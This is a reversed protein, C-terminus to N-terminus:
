STTRLRLMGSSCSSSSSASRWSIWSRLRRIAKSCRSTLLSSAWYGHVRGAGGLGGQAGLRGQERGLFLLAPQHLVQRQDLANDTLQGQLGAGREIAFVHLLDTQQTQEVAQAAITLRIFAKGAEGTQAHPAGNEVLQATLVPSRTRNALLGVLQAIGHAFQGATQAALRAVLLDEGVRSQALLSILAVQHIQGALGDFAQVAQQLGALFAAEAIAAEFLLQLALAQQGLHQGPQRLALLQHEGKVVLVFKGELFDRQNQFEAVCTDALQDLLGDLTGAGQQVLRVLRAR